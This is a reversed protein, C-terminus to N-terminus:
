VIVKKTFLIIKLKKELEKKLETLCYRLIIIELKEDDKIGPAIPMLLFVNECGEPAVTKDSKSSCLCLVITSKAM